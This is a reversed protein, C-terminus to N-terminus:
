NAVIEIMFTNLNVHIKQLETFESSLQMCPDDDDIGVFRCPMVFVACPFMKMKTIPIHNLLYVNCEINPNM